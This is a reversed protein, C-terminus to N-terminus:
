PRAGATDTAIPETTMWDDPFPEGCEPCRPTTLGRLLYGCRDCVPDGTQVRDMRRVVQRTLLAFGAALVAPSVILVVLPRDLLYALGGGLVVGLVAFPVAAWMSAAMLRVYQNEDISRKWESAAVFRVFTGGLLVMAGALGCGALVPLVFGLEISDTNIVLEFSVDYSVIRFFLLCGGTCILGLVILALLARLHCAQAPWRRTARITGALPHLMVQFIASIM